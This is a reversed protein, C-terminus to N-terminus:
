PQRLERTSPVTFALLGREPAYAPGKRVEQLTCEPRRSARFGSKGMYQAIEAVGAPGDNGTAGLARLLDRPAPTAGAGLLGISGM